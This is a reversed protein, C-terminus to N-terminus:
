KNIEAVLNNYNENTVLQNGDTCGPFPFCKKIAKLIRDDRDQLKNVIEETVKEDYGCLLGSGDNHMYQRSAPILLKNM